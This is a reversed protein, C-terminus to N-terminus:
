GECILEAFNGDADRLFLSRGERSHPIPTAGFYGVAAEATQTTRFVLRPTGKVQEEPPEQRVKTAAILGLRVPEYSIFVQGNPRPVRRRTTEGPPSAPQLGLQASFRTPRLEGSKPDEVLFDRYHANDKRTWPACPDDGDAWLKAEALDDTRWGYYFDVRGGMATVYLYECYDFMHVEIAVHDLLLGDDDSAVLQLLNGSPDHVYAAPSREAPHDERWWEVQHGADSLETALDLVRDRHVRYGQHYGSDPFTRPRGHQVLELSQGGGSEYTLRGRGTHWEGDRGRFVREYFHRSADLDAVELVAGLLQASTPPEVPDQGREGGFAGRSRPESDASRVVRGRRLPPPLQQGEEEVSLTM